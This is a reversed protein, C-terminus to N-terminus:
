QLKSFTDFNDLSALDSAKITLKESSLALLRTKKWIKDRCDIKSTGLKGRIFLPTLFNNLHKM